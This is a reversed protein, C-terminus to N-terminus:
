SVSSSFTMPEIKKIYVFLLLNWLWIRNVCSPFIHHTFSDSVTRFRFEIVCISFRPFLADFNLSEKSSLVTSIKPQLQIVQSMYVLHLLTNHPLFWRTPFIPKLDTVFETCKPYKQIPKRSGWPASIAVLGVVWVAALLWKVCARTRKNHPHCGWKQNNRRWSDPFSTLVIWEETTRWENRYICVWQGVEAVTFALHSAAHRLFSTM